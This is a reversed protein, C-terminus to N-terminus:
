RGDHQLTGRFFRIEHLPEGRDTKVGCGTQRCKPTHVIISHLAQFQVKALQETGEETRLGIGM